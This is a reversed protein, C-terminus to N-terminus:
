SVKRLAVHQNGGADSTRRRRGSSHRAGDRLCLAQHSPHRAWSRVFEEARRCAEGVSAGRVYADGAVYAALEAADADGPLAAGVWSRVVEALVLDNTM